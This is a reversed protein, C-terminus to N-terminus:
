RASVVFHGVKQFTVGCSVMWQGAGLAANSPVILSWALRGDRAHKPAGSQLSGDAYNVTAACAAFSKTTLVIKLVQGRHIVPATALVALASSVLLRLPVPEGQPVLM